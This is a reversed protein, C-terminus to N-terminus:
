QYLYISLSYHVNNACVTVMGMKIISKYNVAPGEELIKLFSVNAVNVSLPVMTRVNQGFFSQM